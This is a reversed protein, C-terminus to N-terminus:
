SFFQCSNCRINFAKKKKNLLKVVDQPVKSTSTKQNVDNEKTETTKANIKTPMRAEKRVTKTWMNIYKVKRKISKIMEKEAKRRKIHKKTNKEGKLTHMNTEKKM